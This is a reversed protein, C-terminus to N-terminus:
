SRYKLLKAPVGGVISKGKVNKTVVAGAAVISQSGLDVGGTIVVNAAIWCDTGITIKQAVHGQKNIPRELSTFSHDSSRIVVNPAILVDDGIIIVGGQSADITSNNNISVNDGIKIFGNGHALLRSNDGCSFNRGIEINGFGSIQVNRGIVIGNKFKLQLLRFFIRRITIGIRGPISGIVVLMIQEIESFILKM